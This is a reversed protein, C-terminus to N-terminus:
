KLLIMKRTETFIGSTGDAPAATLRYFYVGSSLLYNNFSLFLRYTGATRIGDAIVKIQEGLSNFLEVKIFADKRLTFRITTTPNFPNPYNQYLIFDKDTTINNNEYLRQIHEKFLNFLDPNQVENFAYKDAINMLDPHVYDWIIASRSPTNRITEFYIKYNKVMNNVVGFEGLLSAKNDASSLNTHDNIWTNGALPTFGWGDPYLHFSGYDINKVSTNELYSTGKYGNFLYYSSNYFLDPDSYNEIHNDYGVEGTTLIHDHDVSKFYEAMERYWINIVSVPAGTNSAENILEFSFIVPEDKYKVGTYINTRNLISNIYFKYWSKISDDTFFDNHNYRKGTLPGLYQDAWKIYQEIGGFDSFNNELTLVLNVNYQEAEYVVYDLAKLGEERLSYPSYRIVSQVSSNSASNFAWTRIVSIGTQKATNFVDDVIYRKSSDSAMWQLYYASFGLFYFENSGKYFKNNLTYAFNTQSICASSILLTLILAAPLFKMEIVFM